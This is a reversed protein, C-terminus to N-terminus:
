TVNIGPHSLLLSLIDVHGSRSAVHLPVFGRRKDRLNVDPDQQSLLARVDEVHGNCVAFQFEKAM